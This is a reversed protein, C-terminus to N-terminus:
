VYCLDFFACKQCLKRSLYIKPPLEKSIIANIDEIIRELEIIDKDELIVTLTQRLLPYDIQGTLEDMGLKKLYYLYYKVQWVGAEEIKRSKKVEHLVKGNKIFDVNIVGDIKVNKETRSYSEEHLIKGINVMDNNEEMTIDHTFYWLKRKCVIYYYVMLGTATEAM